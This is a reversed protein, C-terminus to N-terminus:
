ADTSASSGPQETRLRVLRPMDRRQWRALWAAVSELRGLSGRPKTLTDQRRAVAAATEEDGAPLTTAAARLEAFSSFPM